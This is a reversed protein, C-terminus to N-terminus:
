PSVGQHAGAMAPRIQPSQSPMLRAALAVVEGVIILTPPQFGDQEVTQPLGALSTVTTRQQETTGREVLAVPCTEPVGHHLLNRAIADANSLGMYFVRTQNPTALAAWDLDLSQDAKRHGTVFTVSQAYDRHTLPIGCHSACGSASTIGPVVQFNVDQEMLYEAEEGGRGLIYPDGGKLRVVRQQQRARQVLLSNTDEQRVAHNGSRKGVHLCEACPNVLEMVQPSVLRDHLIVDAQQILMLARLTLLGPDGPGAGVIAVDGARFPPEALQFEVLRKTPNTNDM